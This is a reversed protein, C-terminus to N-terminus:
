RLLLNDLSKPGNQASRLGVNALVLDNLVKAREEKIRFSKADRRFDKLRILGFLEVYCLELEVFLNIRFFSEPLLKGSITGTGTKRVVRRFETEDDQNVFIDASNNLEKFRNVPLVNFASGQLRKGSLLLLKRNYTLNCLYPPGSIM